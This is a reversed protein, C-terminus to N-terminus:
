QDDQDALLMRVRAQELQMETCNANPNEPLCSDPQSAQPQASEQQSIVRIRSQQQQERFVQPRIEGFGGSSDRVFENIPHPGNIKTDM